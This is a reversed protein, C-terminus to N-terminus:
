GNWAIDATSAALLSGGSRRARVALEAGLLVQGFAPRPDRADSVADCSTRWAQRWPADFGARRGAALMPLSLRVATGVPPEIPVSPMAFFADAFGPVDRLLHLGSTARPNCEIAVVSRDTREIFDFAVQGTLGESAVFADVWARVGDHREHRFWVGARGATYPTRYVALAALRGAHAVAYACVVEGAEFRQVVWPAADSPHIASLSNPRHPPVLTDTGFRSFAPKFVWRDSDRLFPALDRESAIRHTEPVGLGLSRVRAAFAAKDHLRALVDPPPAFVPLDAACAAYFVEECTPIVCVAREEAVIRRLDALFRDTQQRPPAVRVSRVVANSVRTLPWAMSEAAVVRRGSWAMARALDLAAPARGGLVVVTESRGTQIRKWTIM